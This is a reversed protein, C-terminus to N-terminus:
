HPGAQAMITAALNATAVHNKQMIATVDAHTHIARLCNECGVKEDWFCLGFTELEHGNWLHHTRCGDATRASRGQMGLSERPRKQFTTM